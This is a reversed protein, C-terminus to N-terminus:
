WTIVKEDKRNLLAFIEMYGSFEFGEALMSQETLGRSRAAKGCVLLKAGHDLALKQYLKTLKHIKEMDDSTMASQPGFCNSLMSTNAAAIPAAAGMFILAGITRKDEVSAIMDILSQHGHTLTAPCNIIFSEKM